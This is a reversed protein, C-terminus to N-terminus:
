IEIRRAGPHPSLSFASPEIRAPYQLQELDLRQWNGLGDLWLAREIRGRDAGTADIRLVVRELGLWATRPVLEVRVHDADRALVRESFLLAPDEGAVLAAYRALPTEGRQVLVRPPSVAGDFGELQTPTLALEADDLTFRAGAVGLALTAQETTTRAHAHEHRVLTVPGSANPHARLHLAVLSLASPEGDQREQAAVGAGIALTAAVACLGGGLRGPPRNIAFPAPNYRETTMESFHKARTTGSM